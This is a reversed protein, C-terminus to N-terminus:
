KKAPLCRAPMAFATEGAPVDSLVVANAGISAGDGVKVGGLVVAGAYITVSDGIIARSSPGAYEDRSHARGITANQHVMFNRGATVPGIVVGMPHPLSFGPGIQAQPRIDCANLFANLRWFFFSFGRGIKGYKRCAVSLRFFFVACFDLRLFLAALLGLLGAQVGQMAELDALLLTYLDM